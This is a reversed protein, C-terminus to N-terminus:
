GVYLNIFKRKQCIICSGIHPSKLQQHYRTSFQYFDEDGIFPHCLTKIVTESDDRVRKIVEKECDSSCSYGFAVGKKNKGFNNSFDQYNAPIIINDQDILNHCYYAEQKTEAQDYLSIQYDKIM